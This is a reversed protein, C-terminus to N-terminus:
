ALFARRNARTIRPRGQTPAQRAAEVARALGALTPAEFLASTPLETGLAERVRSLVRTALLSHGGIEFFHETVGVRERGLVEAWIGCLVEEIPTSPGVYEAGAAGQEPAPLARRDVKGNPTLPVAQLQVFASPVMYEPLEARLQARLLAPDLAEEAAAPVLYAVLQPNGPVDERVVVVAERVGAQRLLVSEIEGPEIRFGRLKVQQDMRGFFELQADARWRVRDGTRYLRAGPESSFPDPVFREATLEPRGLYGRALQVGALYLEAPVGAPVPNLALDLVYARTGAIPRGLPPLHGGAARPAVEGSVAVVTAETPGYNNVLRFPHAACGSTHLVDGGTLLTRLATTAPWPLALLAEALPTPAFALRVEHDVMFRQLAEPSLVTQDDALHLEAGAALNPWIEWASADFGPAAVVSVAQGADVDFSRGHWLVLNLLGGHSVAVGKPAGTSGSTYVVYALNEPEVRAPPLPACEGALTDDDVDLPLVEAADRPIRGAADGDALVLAPAADRLIFALRQPPLAPDLPVYAGGARLVSLMAVVLGPTRAACVGVRVDPGVGRRRLLRALRASRTDLEAYSLAQPGQCLALAGPTRAAQAEVVEHVPPWGQLDVTGGATAFGLLMRREAEGLMELSWLPRNPDATLEELLTGYHRIMRDAAAADFRSADYHIRLRLREEGAVEVSLPLGPHRLVQFSRGSWREGQARLLSDFPQPQYSLVTDFLETGQPVGSWRRVDPLAAHEHPLLAATRDGIEDLWDIVRADSPLPVRFPVTNVLLGVMEEVGEVGTGRGSRVVGFLAESSGTYRGLLFAWAGQVLTNLWVGQEREFARVAGTAHASMRLECEGYPPESAADWPANRSAAVQAPIGIGDLVTTWFAEDVAPDRGSLWEVHERFPRREPLDAIGGAGADYLAFVDRLVHSVSRGDLIVHHFSWVLVHGDRGFGLLALRMAPAESLDFGRARDEELYQRLREERTSPALGSWDHHSTEPRASALVEQVPDPIDAWRFRTRLAEHRQVGVSWADEMRGADLPERLRCVVQEVNVGPTATVLAQLLMGHQLPTLPHSAVISCDLPLLVATSTHM